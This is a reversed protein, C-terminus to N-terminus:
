PTHPAPDERASVPPDLIEKLIFANRLSVPNRLMKGLASHEASSHLRQKRTRGQSLNSKGAKIKALALNEGRTLRSTTTSAAPPRPVATPRPPAVPPPPPPPPVFVPEEPRPDNLSRFFELLPSSKPEAEAEAEEDDGGGRGPESEEARKQKIKEVIHNLAALVAIVLLFYLNPGGDEGAALIAADWLQSNAVLM